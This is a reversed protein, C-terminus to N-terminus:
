KEKVIVVRRNKKRGFDTDNNSIPFKSGMDYVRFQFSPLGRSVFYNLVAEARRLSLSRIVMNEPQRSDSHGEIRWDIEPHLKILTVIRNLENFASPLIEAEGPRFTTEEELIIERPGSSRNDGTESKDPCGSSDVSAGKPTDSCKDKDDYVGDQDSDSCGYENVLTGEPTYPCKDLSDAVGDGDNDEEPCGDEDQFGDRDEPINECDDETDPIGDSDNDIDPCGDRDQFGDIDEKNEPCDDLRDSIGDEDNDPDPCGDLDEFGDYDEPEDPCADKDNQINDNDSDNSGTISISIGAFFSTYFDNEQGTTIDDLNDNQVFHLRTGIEGSFMESIKFRLGVGTNYEYATKEYLGLSNRPAVTGGEDKPSFWLYAYGISVYPFLKDKISYLYSLETGLSLM